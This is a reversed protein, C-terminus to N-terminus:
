ETDNLVNLQKLINEYFLICNILNIKDSFALMQGQFGATETMFVNTALIHDDLAKKNDTTDPVGIDTLSIGPKSALAINPLVNLLIKVRESYLEILQGKLMGELSKRENYTRISSGASIISRAKVAKPQAFSFTTSLLFFAITFLITNKM